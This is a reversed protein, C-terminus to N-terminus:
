RGRLNKTVAEQLRHHPQQRINVELGDDGDADDAAAASAARALTTVANTTTVPQSNLSLQLVLM